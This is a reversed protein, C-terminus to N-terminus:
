KKLRDIIAERSVIKLFEQYIFSGPLIGLLLALKATQWPTFGMESCLGAILASGIGMSVLFLKTTTKM